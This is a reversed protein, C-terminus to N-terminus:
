STSSMRAAARAKKRCFVGDEHPAFVGYRGAMLKRGPPGAASKRGPLVAPLARRLIPMRLAGPKQTFVADNRPFFPHSNSFTLVASWVGPPPPRIQIQKAPGRATLPAAMPPRQRRPRASRQALFDERYGGSAATPNKARAKRREPGFGPPCLSFGQFRSTELAKEPPSPPIQVRAGTERGVGKAPAGRRGRSYKELAFNAFSSETTFPPSPPIRVWPGQPDGTKLVPEKFWESVEGYHGGQANSPASYMNDYKAPGTM